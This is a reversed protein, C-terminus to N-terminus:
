AEQKKGSDFLEIRIYSGDRLEFIGIKNQNLESFEAAKARAEEITFAGLMPSSRRTVKAIYYNKM